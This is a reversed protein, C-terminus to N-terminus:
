FGNTIFLGSILGGVLLTLLFTSIPELTLYWSVRCEVPVGELAAFETAWWELVQGNKPSVLTYITGHADWIRIIRHRGMWSRAIDIRRLSAVPVTINKAFGVLNVQDGNVTMRTRLRTPPFFHYIMLVIFLYGVIISMCFNLEETTRSGGNTAQRILCVLLFSGYVQARMCYLRTGNATTTFTHGEIEGSVTEM